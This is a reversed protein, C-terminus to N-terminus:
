RFKINNQYDLIESPSKRNGIKGGIIYIKRGFQRYVERQTKCSRQKARNCSTSVLASNLKKSLMRAIIHDPIRVALQCRRQGRLQPLVQNNSKLVFTKAAPWQQKLYIIDGDSLPELLPQLQKINNAITILGKHQPRKKLRLITKLGKINNPLCGLGYCSETPYAIVGGRQLHARLKQISCPLKIRKM